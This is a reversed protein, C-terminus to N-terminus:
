AFCCTALTSYHILELRIEICFVIENTLSSYLTSATNALDQIDGCIRLLLLVGAIGFKLKLLEFIHLRLEIKTIVCGKVGLRYGM